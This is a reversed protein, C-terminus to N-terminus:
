DVLCLSITSSFHTRSPSAVALAIMWNIPDDEQSFACRWINSVWIELSCGSARSSNTLSWLADPCVVRRKVQRQSETIMLSLSKISVCCVMLMELFCGFFLGSVSKWLCPWGLNLFGITAETFNRAFFFFFSFGIIAAIGVSIWGQLCPDNKGISPNVACFIDNLKDCQYCPQAHSCFCEMLTEWHPHQQSESSPQEKNYLLTGCM